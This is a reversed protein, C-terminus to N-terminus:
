VWSDINVELVSKTLVSKVDLNVEDGGRKVKLVSKTLVSKDDLIVKGGVRKVHLVSKDLVSKDDLIVKDGDRKVKLVSKAEEGASCTFGQHAHGHDIKVKTISKIVTEV